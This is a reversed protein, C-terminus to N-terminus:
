GKVFDPYLEAFALAVYGGMSNSWFLKVYAIRSLSRVAEANDEM